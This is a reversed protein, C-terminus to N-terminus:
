QCDWERVSMGKRRAGSEHWTSGDGLWPGGCILPSTSDTRRHDNTSEGTGCLLSSVPKVDSVQQTLSLQFLFSHFVMFSPALPSIFLSFKPIIFPLLPYSLPISVYPSYFISQHGDHPHNIYYKTARQHQAGFIGYCIYLCCVRRLTVARLHNLWVNYNTLILKGAKRLDHHLVGWDHKFSIQCM